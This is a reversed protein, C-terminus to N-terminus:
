LKQIKGNLNLTENKISIFYIGPDISLNNLNLSNSGKAVDIIKSFVTIGASNKIKLIAAAIQLGTFSVNLTNKFPNPFLIFSSKVLSTSLKVISSYLVSGSEDVHKLRYYVYQSNINLNDENYNYIKVSNNVVGQLNLTAATKFNLGDFSKLVEFHKSNIENSTQWELLSKGDIFRGTFSILKLPVTNCSDVSLTFDNIFICEPNNLGNAKTAVCLRYKNGDMSATVTGINNTVTYSTGSFSATAPNSADTYSYGGDTSIQWKYFNHTQTNDTVQYNITLPTGVCYSQMANLIEVKSECVNISIDDLGLDNGIAIATANSIELDVTNTTATFSGAIKFWQSQYTAIIPGSNALVVGNVTLSINPAAVTDNGPLLNIVWASFEYTKGICVPIRRMQYFFSSQATSPAGNVAMFYGGDGTHDKGRWDGKICNGGNNDGINKIITYRFEPALGDQQDTYIYDSCPTSAAVNTCGTLVNGINNIPSYTPTGSHTCVSANQNAVIYKNSFTGRAGLLNPGKLSNCQATSFKYSCLM